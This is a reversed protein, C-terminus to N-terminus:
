EHAFGSANVNAVARVLLCRKDRVHRWLFIMSVCRQLSKEAISRESHQWERIPPERDDPCRCGIPRNLCLLAALSLKASHQRFRRIVDEALERHFPRSACKRKPRLVGFIIDPATDRQDTIRRVGYVWQGPLSGIETQLIRRLKRRDYNSRQPRSFM